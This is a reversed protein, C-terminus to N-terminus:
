NIREEAQYIKKFYKQKIFTIKQLMKMKEELDILIWPIKKKQKVAEDIIMDWNIDKETKVITEVDEYDRERNTIVKLLILYEKPLVFIILEKKGIFDHRQWIMEQNFEVEFGFVNKVFLDFREEGRSFILPKNKIKQRKEDYIFKISKEKFGLSEIAKIFFKRDKDNKFILDIDKTTTKYGAFMMATGGIATCTIDKQLYDAILRFLEEQDKTNIM